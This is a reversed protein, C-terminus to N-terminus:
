GMWKREKTYCRIWCRRSNIPSNVDELDEADAEDDHRPFGPIWALTFTTKEWM